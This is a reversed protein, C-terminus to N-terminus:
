PLIRILMVYSEPRSMRVNQDFNLLFIDLNMQLQLRNFNQKLTIIFMTTSGTSIWDHYRILLLHM